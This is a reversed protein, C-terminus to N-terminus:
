IGEFEIGHAAAQEIIAKTSRMSTRSIGFRDALYDKASAIDTVHIKMMNGDADSEESVEDDSDTESIVEEPNEDNSEEDEKGNEKTVKKEKNSDTSKRKGNSQIAKNSTKKDESLGILRFLSGFRYHSEIAKQIDENDTSYVSSGDSLPTFTIHLNKKSALVVNISVNTNAKYTKTTM